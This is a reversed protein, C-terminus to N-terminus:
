YENYIVLHDVRAQPEYPRYVAREGDWGDEDYLPDGPGIRVFIVKKGTYESLIAVARPMGCFESAVRLVRREKDFTCFKLPITDIQSM